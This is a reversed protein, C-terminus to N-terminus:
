CKAVFKERGNAGFFPPRPHVISRPFSKTKSRFMSFIKCTTCEITNRHIERKIYYMCEASALDVNMYIYIGDVIM